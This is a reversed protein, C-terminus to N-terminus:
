YHSKAALLYLLLTAATANSQMTNLVLSGAALLAKYDLRWCTDRIKLFNHHTGDSLTMFTESEPHRRVIVTTPQVIEFCEDPPPHEHIPTMDIFYKTGRADVM